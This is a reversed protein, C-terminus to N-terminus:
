RKARGNKIKAIKKTAEIPDFGIVKALAFFQIVNIRRQGSEIQAVWQQKEHLRKAVDVQRLGAAHRKDRILAALANNQNSYIVKMEPEKKPNGPIAGPM